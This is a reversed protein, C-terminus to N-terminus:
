RPWPFFSEHHSSRVVRLKSSQAARWADYFVDQVIDRTQERDGVMGLVFAYLKPQAMALLRSFTTLSFSTVADAKRV